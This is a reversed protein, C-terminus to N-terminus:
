GCSQAKRFTVSEGCGAQAFLIICCFSGPGEYSLCRARDNRSVRRCVCGLWGAYIPYDHRDSYIFVMFRSGWAHRIKYELLRLVLARWVVMGFSGFVLHGWPRRFCPVDLFYASRQQYLSDIGAGRVRVM